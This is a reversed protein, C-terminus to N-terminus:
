IPEVVAAAAAAALCAIRMCGVRRNANGCRAMAAPLGLATSCGVPVHGALMNQLRLWPVPQQNEDCQKRVQGSIYQVEKRRYEAMEALM